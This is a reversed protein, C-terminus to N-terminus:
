QAILQTHGVGTANASAILDDESVSANYAKWRDVNWIELRNTMGVIIVESQLAIGAHDRLTAPIAARGQGDATAEIAEACFFRQLRITHVDLIPQGRFKDDFNIRWENEDLVFLCGGMGKTIIFREGLRSRFKSPIIVRGKEDITHEYGGRFV